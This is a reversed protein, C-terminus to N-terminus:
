GNVTNMISGNPMTISCEVLSKTYPSNKGL